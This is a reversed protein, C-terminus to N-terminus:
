RRYLRQAKVIQTMQAKSPRQLLSTRAFLHLTSCIRKDYEVAMVTNIDGLAAELTRAGSFWTAVKPGRLSFKSGKRDQAPFESEYQNLFDILADGVLVMDPTILEKSVIDGPEVGFLTKAESRYDGEEELDTEYLKKQNGYVDLVDTYGGNYGDKGIQYVNNVPDGFQDDVNYVVALQGSNKVDQDTVEALTKNLKRATQMRVWTPASSYYSLPVFNDVDVNEEASGSLVESVWSGFRPEIYTAIDQPDGTGSHFL